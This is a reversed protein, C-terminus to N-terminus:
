FGQQLVRANVQASAPHGEVGPDCSKPGGGGALQYLSDGLFGGALSGINRGDPALTSRGVLVRQGGQECLGSGSCMWETGGGRFRVENGSDVVKRSIQRVIHDGLGALVFM